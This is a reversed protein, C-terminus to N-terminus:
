KKPCSQTSPNAIVTGCVSFNPNKKSADCLLQSSNLNDCKGNKATSDCVNWNTCKANTGNCATSNNTCGDDLDSNSGGLMGFDPSLVMSQMEPTIIGKDELSKLFGEIRTLQKMNILIKSQKNILSLYM